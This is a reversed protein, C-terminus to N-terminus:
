DRELRLQRRPKFFAGLLRDAEHEHGERGADDVPPGPAVGARAGVGVFLPMGPPAMEASSGPVAMDLDAASALGGGDAQQMAEGAGAGDQEEEDGGQRRPE